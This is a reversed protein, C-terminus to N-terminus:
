EMSTKGIMIDSIKESKKGSFFNVTYGLWAM